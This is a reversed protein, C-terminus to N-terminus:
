QPRLLSEPIRIGERNGESLSPDSCFVRAKGGRVLWECRLVARKCALIHDGEIELYSGDCLILTSGEADGKRRHWCVFRADSAIGAQRWPKGQEGFFFQWLGGDAVLSYAQAAPVSGDSAMQTLTHSLGYSQPLPLILTVFEAPLDASIGFNVMTASRKQGYVPSWSNSITEASWKSGQVTLL